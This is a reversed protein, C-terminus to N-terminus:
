PNVDILQKIVNIPNLQTIYMQLTLTLNVRAHQKPTNYTNPQLVYIFATTNFYLSQSAKMKSIVLLLRVCEKQISPPYKTTALVIRKSATYLLLFINRSVVTNAHNLQEAFLQRSTRSHPKRQHCYIILLTTLGLLLYLM